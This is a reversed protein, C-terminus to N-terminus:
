SSLAEIGVFIELVCQLDIKFNQRCGDIFLISSLEDVLIVLIGTKVIVIHSFLKSQVEFRTIFNNQCMEKNKEWRLSSLFADRTNSDVPNFLGQFNTHLKYM